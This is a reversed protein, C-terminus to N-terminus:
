IEQVQLGAPARTLIRSPPPSGEIAPSTACGGAAARTRWCLVGAAAAARGAGAVAAGGDSRRPWAAAPAAAPLGGSRTRALAPMGLLAVGRAGPGEAACGPAAVAQAERGQRRGGRVAHVPLPQLPGQVQDPGVGEQDQGLARGQPARDAPVGQDGQDAEAAPPPPPPSAPPPAPRAHAAAAAACRLAACRAGGAAGHAREHGAAATVGAVLGPWQEEAEQCDWGAGPARAPGRPLRRRPALAATPARARRSVM